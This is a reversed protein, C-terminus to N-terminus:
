GTEGWLARRISYLMLVRTKETTKQKRKETTKQKRKKKRDNEAKKKRESPLESQRRAFSFTTHTFDWPLDPETRKKLKMM